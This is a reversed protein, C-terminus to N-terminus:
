LSLAPTVTVLAPSIVLEDVLVAIASFSPPSSLLAIPAVITPDCCVASYTVPAEPTTNFAPVM